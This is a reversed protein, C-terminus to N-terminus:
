LHGAEAPAIHSHFRAGPAHRERKVMGLAILRDHGFERLRRARRQQGPQGHPIAREQRLKRRLAREPHGQRMIAAVAVLQPLEGNGVDTLLPQSFRPDMSRAM